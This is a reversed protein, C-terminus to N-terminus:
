AASNARSNARWIAWLGLLLMPVCLMMGMTVWSTGLLYGLQADPVRVFEVLIRSIAYLSVFTGAVLGPRKLAGFRFVMIALIIGTVLGELGAEYLQSPHRAFPEEGPFIVAWPLSSIGGFLEGNIFNAIRVLFLGIVCVTAIVDFLSWMSIGRKRAFLIMALTTGILGGHFSMGGKWIQFILTPDALYLPLDYFLIFGIRGGLVIGIAAWLLFDDLDVVNMSPQSNAWLYPTTVIKRAYWWALLISVVYSIGYWRVDIPGISFATPGIDPFPLVALTEFAPTLPADPNPKPNGSIVDLGHGSLPPATDFAVVERNGTPM